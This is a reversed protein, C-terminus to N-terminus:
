IKLSTKMLAFLNEREELGHLATNIKFTVAKTDAFNKVHPRVRNKWYWVAAKAAIEPDAMLEPHKTFPIDLAKELQNYNYRGTIHLYGRGKFRAGDGKETNGLIKAREPQEYQKFYRTSGREELSRFNMTEHSAQALFQALEIGKIGSALATKRLRKQLPKEQKVKSQLVTKPNHKFVEADASRPSMAGSAIAVAALAGATKEKWGEDITQLEHVKM